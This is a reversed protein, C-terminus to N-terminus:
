RGWKVRADTLRWPKSQSGREFYGFLWGKLGLAGPCTKYVRVMEANFGDRTNYELAGDSHLIQAVKWRTDGYKLLHAESPLSQAASTL